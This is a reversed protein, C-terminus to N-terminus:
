EALDKTLRSTESDESLGDNEEKRYLQWLEAVPPIFLGITIIIAGIFDFLSGRIPQLQPFILYQCLIKAPIEANVFLSIALYSMFSILAYWLLHGGGSTLAHIVIYITDDLQTPLAMSHWEIIVMMIGSLIMSCGDYWFNAILADEVHDKMLASCCIGISAFIANASCLALGYLVGGITTTSINRHRLAHEQKSDIIFIADNSENNVTQFVSVIEFGLNNETTNELHHSTFDKYDNDTLRVTSVLGLVILSCGIICLLLSIGKRRNLYEGLLLRGILITAVTYVMSFMGDASALPIVEFKMFYIVQSVSLALSGILLTKWCQLPVRPIM